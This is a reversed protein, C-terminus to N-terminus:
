KREIRLIGIFEGVKNDLVCSTAASVYWNIHEQSGKCETKLLMM